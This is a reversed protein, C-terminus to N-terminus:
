KQNGSVLDWVVLQGTDLGVLATMAMSPITVATCMAGMKIKKFLHGSMLDYIVVFNSSHDEVERCACALCNGKYSIAAMKTLFEHQPLRIDHLLKCQELSWVLLPFPKQTEDGCVLVRGDGSVFLSDLFRTEGAKFSTVIGGTEIDLVQVVMRDRSLAVVRKNNQLAFLPLRLNLVSRLKTVVKGADLDLVYLERNCLVVATTSDLMEIRQPHDAGTLTRVTKNTVMNVIKIEGESRLLTALFIENIAGTVPLIDDIAPLPITTSYFKDTGAGNMEDMPYLLSGPPSSLAAYFQKLGSKKHKSKSSKFSSSSSNNIMAKMTPQLCKYIERNNVNLVGSSAFIALQILRVEDTFMTEMAAAKELDCLVQLVSSAKIKGELWSLNLVYADIVYADKNGSLMLHTPLCMYRRTNPFNGFSDPQPMIFRDQLLEIEEEPDPYPKKKGAWRGLFKDALERHLTTSTTRSGQYRSQACRRMACSAWTHTYFSASMFLHLFNKFLTRAVRWYIPPARHIPPDRVDSYISLLVADNVSLLDGMEWPTVGGVSGTLYAMMAAFCDSPMSSKPPELLRGLIQEVSWPLEDETIQDSSKWTVTINSVTLAYLPLPCARIASNAVSFQYETLQHKQDQLSKNFIDVMDEKDWPTAKIYHAEKMKARLGRIVDADSSLLVIKTTRPLPGGLTMVELEALKRTYLTVGELILIIPMHYTSCKAIEELLAERSLSEPKPKDPAMSTLKFPGLITDVQQRVSLLTSMLTQSDPSIGMFRYIVLSTTFNSTAFNVLQAALTSLGWGPAAYVLIPEECDSTLATKLNILTPSELMPRRPSPPGPSPSMFLTPHALRHCYQTQTVLEEILSRPVGTAVQQKGDQRQHIMTEVLHTVTDRVKVCLESTLSCPTQKVEVKQDSEPEMSLDSTAHVQIIREYSCHDTVTKRVSEIYNFTATEVETVDGLTSTATLTTSPAVTSSTASALTSKKEPTDSSPSFSPLNNENNTASLSQSLIAPQPQQLISPNLPQSVFPSRPRNRNSPGINKSTKCTSEQTTSTPDTSLLGQTVAITNNMLVNKNRTVKDVAQRYDCLFKRLHEEPDGGQALFAEMMLRVLQDVKVEEQHAVETVKLEYLPPQLNTNHVYLSNLLATSATDPLFILVITYDEHCLTRPLRPTFQDTLFLENGIVGVHSPLWQIVTRMGETKQLYDALLVAKGVSESGSGGLVQVLARCNTFIVVGPLAIGEKAEQYSGTFM